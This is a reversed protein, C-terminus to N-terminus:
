NINVNGNGVVANMGSECKDTFNNNTTWAIRLRSNDIKSWFSCPISSSLDNDNLYVTKLQSFDPWGTPFDGSFNNWGASIIRINSPVTTFPAISGTMSNGSLTLSKLYPLNRFNSPLTGTINNHAVNLTHLDTFNGNNFYQPFDGTFNNKTLDITRLNTFNSLDPINGTLGNEFDNPPDFTGLNLYSLTTLNSWSSPISGTLGAGEIYIHKIASLNGWSSPLTEGSFNNGSLYIGELNSLNGIETPIPGVINKANSLEFIKLNSLNGITTPISGSFENKNSYYKGQHYDLQDMNDMNPEKITGGIDYTRGQLILVELSSMNGIESPIPGSLKNGKVNFYRVNKLNGISAPLQGNLNNNFLDIRTVQGQSNVQIGHWSDSPDGQGWGSNNAWYDGGTSEYLAMLADREATTSGGDNLNQQDETTFSWVSSWNGSDGDGTAQVRWYYSQSNALGSVEYYTNAAVNSVVVSSFSNDTALQIKYEGINSIAEWELTVSIPQNGAGDTPSILTVPPVPTSEAKTTFSNTGSWDGGTGNQVARVRWHYSTEESLNKSPTFNTGDVEQKIVMQDGQSVHVIYKDAGEIAKWEFGPQLAVGTADNEPTVLTPAPLSESAVEKTTFSKMKSWDLKKEKKVARVRWYYGTTESLNKSPIFSTSEVQQEIVMQDDHSVHLIYSDAGGVAQWEFKPLLVVGTAENEPSILTVSQPNNKAKSTSDFNKNSQTVTDNCQALMLLLSTCVWLFFLRRKM